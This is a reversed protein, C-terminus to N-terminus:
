GIQVGAATHAAGHARPPAFNHFFVTTYPYNDVVRSGCSSAGPLPPLM